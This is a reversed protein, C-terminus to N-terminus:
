RDPSSSRHVDKLMSSGSSAPSCTVLEGLMRTAKKLRPAVGLITTPVVPHRVAVRHNLDQM